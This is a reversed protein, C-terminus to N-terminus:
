DYGVNPAQKANKKYNLKRKIQKGASQATFLDPLKEKKRDNIVQAKLAHYCKQYMEWKKCDDKCGLAHHRCGRCPCPFKKQAVAHAIQENTM